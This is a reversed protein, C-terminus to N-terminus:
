SRAGPRAPAPCGPSPVLRHTPAPVRRRGRLPRRGLAALVTLLALWSSGDTSGAVCTCGGGPWRTCAEPNWAEFGDWEVTIECVRHERPECWLTSLSDAPDLEVPGIAAALEDPPCHAEGSLVEGTLLNKVRPTFCAAEDSPPLTAHAEGFRLGAFALQGASREWEDPRLELDVVLQNTGRTGACGDVSSTHTVGCSATPRADKCCVITRLDYDERLAASFDVALAPLATLPPLTESAVVDVNLFVPPVKEACGFDGLDPDPYSVASLWVTYAQGPVLPADPRWLIRAFDRDLELSGAVTVASGDVVVVDLDAEDFSDFDPEIRDYEFALVGSAPITAGFAPRLEVWGYCDEACPHARAETASLASPAIIAVAAICRGVASWRGVRPYRM